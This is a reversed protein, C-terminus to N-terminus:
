KRSKSKRSKSKRSKNKRNKRSKRSKSKRTKRSKRTKGYSPPKRTLPKMTAMQKELMKKSLFRSIHKTLSNPNTTIAIDVENLTEADNDTKYESIISSIVSNINEDNGYEGLMKKIKEGHKVKIDNVLEIM